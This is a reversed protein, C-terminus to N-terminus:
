KGKRQESLGRCSKMYLCFIYSEIFIPLNHDINLHRAQLSVQEAPLVIQPCKQVGGGRNLMIPAFLM